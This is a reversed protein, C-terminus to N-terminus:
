ILFRNLELECNPRIDNDSIGEPYIVEGIATTNWLYCSKFAIQPLRSLRSTAIKQNGKCLWDFYYCWVCKDSKHLTEKVKVYFKKIYFYYNKLITWNLM